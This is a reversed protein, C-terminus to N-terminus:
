GEQATSTPRNPHPRDDPIEFDTCENSERLLGLLADPVPENIISGFRARFHQKIWFKVIQDESEIDM